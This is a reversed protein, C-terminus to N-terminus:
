HAGPNRTHKYSTLVQLPGLVTAYCQSLLVRYWLVKPCVAQSCGCRIRVVLLPALPAVGAAGASPRADGVPSLEVM